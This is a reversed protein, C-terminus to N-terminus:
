KKRGLIKLAEKIKQESDIIESSVQSVAQRARDSSFGLSVLAEIIESDDGGGIAVTGGKQLIDKIKSQLGMVLNEALRKSLGAVTVLHDPKDIIVAQRIDDLSAQELIQLAKKPGIGSIGILLKFFDVEVISSFGFLEQSDERVYLYTYIETPESVKLQQLIKATTIVQYGVGNVDILFYNDKKSVASKHIIKGKLYAIM